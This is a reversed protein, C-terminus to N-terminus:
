AGRGLADLSEAVSLAMLVQARGVEEDLVGARVAEAARVAQGLAARVADEHSRTQSLVAADWLM